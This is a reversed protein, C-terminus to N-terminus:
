NLGIQDFRDLNLRYQFIPVYARDGFVEVAGIQFARLVSRLPCLFPILGCPALEATTSMPPALMSIWGNRSRSRWHATSRCCFAAPWCCSAFHVLNRMMISNARNATRKARKLIRAMQSNLAYISGPGDRPPGSSPKGRHSSVMRHANGPNM